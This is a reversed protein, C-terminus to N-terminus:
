SCAAKVVLSRAQFLNKETVALEFKSRIVSIIKLEIPDGKSYSKGWWYPYETSLKPLNYRKGKYKGFLPFLHINAGPFIGRYESLGWM